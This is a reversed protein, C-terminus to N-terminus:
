FSIDEKPYRYYLQPSQRIFAVLLTIMGVRGVFMTLIVVVKSGISLNPTIGLSLGTTSFASFIEFAIQILGKDSDNVSVLFIFFGLMLFSLLIIAFARRVSQHSIESKFFETRDKGRLVAVMNLLAVGATTTRIGGGTSGPSAGVWMLLLFIMIMPLSILEMNFTNFGGSRPTVAAFFSTIIKGYWTPHDVLSDNREFLLFAVFGIVLLVGSMVLALRSNISILKPFHERKVDKRVLHLLNVAQVKLYRYLNFVIPFGMSGLFVLLAISVHLSYNYRVAPEFLANTYTSFGANCFASIAHFLSFFLKDLKRDFLADDLSFYIAIAGLAEFVFTVIVVQSVFYMINSIQRNSMLDRFALESKFSSQGGVAYALLGAFTMIGLGGAQVLGIIILHGFTTFHTATNVVTLGTVCVASTATFLADILRIGGNTANPLKLLFTGIVILIAFSGVFLLAPSVSRNYIFQLLYSTETIFTFVLGAYLLLKYILFTNTDYVTLSAKAPLIYFALFIIFLWGVLNFVRSWRKKSTFLRLFLRAGLLIVLANLIIQGWLLVTPSNRWFPKFGFDYIVLSVGIFAVIPILFGCVQLLVQYLNNIFLAIRLRRKIRGWFVKFGRM